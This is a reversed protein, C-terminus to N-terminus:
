SFLGDIVQGDSIPTPRELRPFYTQHPNLGLAHYISAGFDAPTWPRTKPFAGKRDTAGIVTGGRIGAGAMVVCGANPYHDRGYTKNVKPTRGFEGM